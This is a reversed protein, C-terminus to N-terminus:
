GYQQYRALRSSFYGRPKYKQITSTVLGFLRVIDIQNCQARTLSRILAIKLLDQATTSYGGLTRGKRSADQQNQKPTGLFLHDPNVCKPNDCHHCVLLKGPDEGTALYWALRSALVRRLTGASPSLSLQSAYHHSRDVRVWCAPHYKITYEPAPAVQVHDPGWVRVAAPMLIHPPIDTLPRTPRPM